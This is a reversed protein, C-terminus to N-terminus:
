EETKAVKLAFFFLYLNSQQGKKAAWHKTKHKQKTELLLLLPSYNLKEAVNVNIVSFIHFISIREKVIILIWHELMAEFEGRLM